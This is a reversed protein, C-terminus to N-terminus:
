DPVGRAPLRPISACQRTGDALSAPGGARAGDCERPPIPDHADPACGGRLPPRQEREIADAKDSVSANRAHPPGSRGSLGEGMRNVPWAAKGRFGTDRAVEHDAARSQPCVRFDTSSTTLWSTVIDGTSISAICRRVVPSAGQCAHVAGPTQKTVQIASGM